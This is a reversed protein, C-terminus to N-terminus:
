GTTTVHISISPADGEDNGFLPRFANAHEAILEGNLFIAACTDLAEFVLHVRGKAFGAPVSFSHRYWWERDEVWRWHDLNDAIFPEPLEGSSWLSEQVCGPVSADMWARFRTRMFRPEVDGAFGYALGSGPICVSSLRWNGTLPISTGM